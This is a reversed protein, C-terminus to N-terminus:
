LQQIQRHQQAAEQNLPSLSLTLSTVQHHILRFAWILLPLLSVRHIKFCIAIVHGLLIFYLIFLPFHVLTLPILELPMVNQPAVYRQPDIIKDPVGEIAEHDTTHWM